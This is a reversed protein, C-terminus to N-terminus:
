FENDLKLTHIKEPIAWGYGFYHQPKSSAVDTLKILNGYFIAREKVTLHAFEYRTFHAKEIYSEVTNIYKAQNVLDTYRITALTVMVIVILCVTATIIICFRKICRYYAGRTYSGKDFNNKELTAYMLTTFMSALLLVLWLM